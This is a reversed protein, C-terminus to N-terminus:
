RRGGMAAKLQGTKFNFATIMADRQLGDKMGEILETELDVSNGQADVITPAPTIQPRVAEPSGAALADRLAAEFQVQGARFGPTNLNAVNNARVQGRVSLADLASLAARATVDWM